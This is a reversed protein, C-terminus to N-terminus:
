ALRLILIARKREQPGRLPLVALYITQIILKGNQIPAFAEFNQLRACVRMNQWQWKFITKRWAVDRLPSLGLICM